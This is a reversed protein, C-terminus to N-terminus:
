VTTGQPATSEQGGGRLATAIRPASGHQNPPDFWVNAEVICAGEPGIAVDWGIARLPHFARAATTVIECAQPWFPLRFGAFLIGTKPHAILTQIGEGTGPIRNASRLRGTGACVPAEVNGKLGDIHTDIIQEDVIPKFHAHLIRCTGDGDLLTIMRVTQLYQTGTLRVLEPHNHLREQIVAGGRDAYEGLTEYLGDATYRRGFADLFTEGDRHLINFGKGFAGRVPKVAFKEPLALALFRAWDQRTELPRGDHSWGTGQAPFIAFLRPTAIGAAMCYRYFKGKDRARATSTVPNVAKQLKTLEKRSIYRGAESRPLDPDFLGLRFAEAPLFRRRRCLRVARSFSRLYRAGPAPAIRACLRAAAYLTGAKTRYRNFM